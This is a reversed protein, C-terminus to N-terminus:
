VTLISSARATDIQRATIATAHKQLEHVLDIAAARKADDPRLDPWGDVRTQL